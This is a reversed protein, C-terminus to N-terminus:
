PNKFIAKWATHLLELHIFVDQLTKFRLATYLTITEWFFSDVRFWQFLNNKFRIGIRKMNVQFMLKMNVHFMLM